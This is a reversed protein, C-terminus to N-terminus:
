DWEVGLRDLDRQAYKHGQRAAKVLWKVGDDVKKRTGEGKM